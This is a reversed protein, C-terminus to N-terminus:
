RGHKLLIMLHSPQRLFGHKALINSLRSSRWIDMIKFLWRIVINLLSRLLDQYDKFIRRKFPDGSAEVTRWFLQQCSNAITKITNYNQLSRLRDQFSWLTELKFIPFFDVNQLSRLSVRKPLINSIRIQRLFDM